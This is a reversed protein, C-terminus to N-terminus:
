SEASVIQNRGLDKARYLAADAKAILEDPRSDPDPTAGALGISVTVRKSARSNEHPIALNEVSSRVAEAVYVAGEATTSPLVVVFEEGGYRSLFDAPRRLACTMAESVKKICTDGAQHGYTDNYKKFDDIDAMIITICSDERSARRWESALREEFFRRNPIGTLPDLTTLRHLHMMDDFRAIAVTIARELEGIDPPKVLYAGAGAETAQLVLDNSEYASLVVVPTPCSEQIRKSAELGDMGPMHIDMLVVDPKLSSVMELAEEGDCAKGVVKYGSRELLRGVVMRMVNDDDAILVSPKSKEVLIEM